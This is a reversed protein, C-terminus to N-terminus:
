VGRARNEVDRAFDAFRNRFRKLMRHRALRMSQIMLRAPVTRPKADLAVNMRTRSKSMAVLDILLDIEFGTSRVSARLRDPAAHEDLTIRAERARGRFSFTTKWAMGPGPRALDDVRQVDAGRRMIAREFGDFDSLQEFVANIPADIDERTALKM